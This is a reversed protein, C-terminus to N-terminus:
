HHNTNKKCATATIWLFYDIGDYTVILCVEDDKDTCHIYKATYVMELIDDITKETPNRLFSNKTNLEEKVVSKSNAIKGKIYTILKDGKLKINEFGQMNINLNKLM